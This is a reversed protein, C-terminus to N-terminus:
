EALKLAQDREFHAADDLSQPMYYCRQSVPLAAYLADPIVQRKDQERVVWARKLNERTLADTACGPLALCAALVVVLMTFLRIM